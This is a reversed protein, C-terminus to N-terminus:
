LRCVLLECEFILEKPLHESLKLVAGRARTDAAELERPRHSSKLRRAMLGDLM